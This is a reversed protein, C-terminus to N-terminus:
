HAVPLAESTGYAEKKTDPPVDPLDKFVLISVFGLGNSSHISYKLLSWIGLTLMKM